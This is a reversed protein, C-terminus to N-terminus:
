IDYLLDKTESFIIKHKFHHYSLSSSDGLSEEHIATYERPNGHAINLIPIEQQLYGFSCMIIVQEVAYQVYKKIMQLM